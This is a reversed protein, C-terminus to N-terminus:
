HQSSSCSAFNKRRRSRLHQASHPNGNRRNSKQCGREPDPRCVRRPRSCSPSCSSRPEHESNTAELLREERDRTVSTCSATSRTMPPLSFKKLPAARRTIPSALTHTSPLESMDGSICDSRTSCTSLGIAFLIAPQRKAWEDVSETRPLCHTSTM